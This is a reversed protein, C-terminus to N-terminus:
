VDRVTSLSSHPALRSIDQRFFPFPRTLLYNHHPPTWVNNKLVKKHGSGSGVALRAIKVCCFSNIPLLNIVLQNLM